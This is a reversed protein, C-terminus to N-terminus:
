DASRPPRPLGQSATPLVFRRWFTRGRNSFLSGTHKVLEYFFPGPDRWSFDAWVKPGRWSERWDSLSIERRMWQRLAAQFDRRLHVWKVGTYRQELKAPLPLGVLDAYMAYHLEVGGGEAIASRGTARCINPEVIYHDGTRSDRKMELYALGHFGVSQFLRLTEKLVVDNRCEEGLCSSGTYPPWQRLKRAVFTAVPRSEVDFYANCSYLSDEGGEIWEQVILIDAHRSATEYRELLAEASPIRYAKEHHDRWLQTRVAPKLIAPFRMTEAARVADERSHLFRTPPIPLDHEQAFRYFHVKDLLTEVVQHSPLAMRYWPAIRERHLSLNFVVLDQTALIVAPQDLEPGLRELVDVFAGSGIDGDLVQQFTRSCCYPHKPDGIGTVRIGHRALIRASQLGAMSGADIVIASPREKNQM